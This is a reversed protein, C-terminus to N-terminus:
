ASSNKHTQIDLTERRVTDQFHVVSQEVEKRINIDQHVSAQTDGVAVEQYIDLRAVEGDQLPTESVILRTSANSLTTIEIVIKEKAVPVSVDDIDSIIKKQISIEGSKIRHKEGVLKETYLQLSVYDDSSQESLVDVDTFESSCRATSPPLKPLVSSDSSNDESEEVTAISERLLARYAAIVKKEYYPDVIASNDYTPISNIQEKEEFISTSVYHEDFNIRCYAIPLLIRKKPFWFGSDIVLYHITRTEDLLLSHVWGIKEGTQGICVDIGKIDRGGFLAERYHPVLVELKYLAM